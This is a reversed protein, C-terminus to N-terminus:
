KMYTANILDSLRWLDQRLTLLAEPTLSSATEAALRTDLQMALRAVPTMRGAVASGPLHGIHDRARALHYLIARPNAGDLALLDAVSVQTPGVSYRMRHSMTSDGVELLLDLIGDPMDADMLTGLTGATEAARELSMGLSLFRWGTSRYMNEHVLGSFGTIVRLLMSVRAPIEDPNLRKASLGRAQDALSQLTMMGDVSFRDRANAANDRAAFLPTEFRVAMANAGKEPHLDMRETLYSLLPGDPDAGEALRGYYARFIRMQGEAREIYRGLWFLSDAARSPLAGASAVGDGVLSQRILNPKPVPGDSVIWVDAVSGGKQMALATAERGNGIRAYGGPMVRWGEATRALFVRLTMPRPELGDGTWVPTTSLTVAEQGVLEGGKEALLREMAARAGARLSRGLSSGDEGDFPLSTAFAPGLVMDDHHALV